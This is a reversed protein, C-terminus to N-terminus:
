LIRGYLPEAQIDRRRAPRGLQKAWFPPPDIDIMWRTVTATRETHTVELPASTIAEDGISGVHM